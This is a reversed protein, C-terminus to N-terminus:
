CIQLRVRSVDEDAGPGLAARRPHLGDDRMEDCRVPGTPRVDGLDRRKIVNLRGPVAVRRRLRERCMKRLAAPAAPVRVQEPGEYRFTPAVDVDHAVRGVGDHREPMVQPVLATGRARQLASLQDFVREGTSADLNGTPEDALPLPHRHGARQDAGRAAHEGGSLQAPRHDLRQELGVAALGERAQRRAERLGIGAMQLPLAVNEEASFEPLLHHFQYVFGLAENRLRTRQRDGLTDLRAGALTVHGSSPRDLGGLLHLLTSKGSGSQGVIAVFEGPQVSLAVDDLVTLTQGGEDFRRGLGACSLVAETM